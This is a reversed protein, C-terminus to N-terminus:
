QENVLQQLDIHNIKFLVRQGMLMSTNLLEFGQPGRRAETSCGRSCADRLISNIESQSPVLCQSLQPCMAKYQPNLHRPRVLHFATPVVYQSILYWALMCKEMEARYTHAECACYWFGSVSAASLCDSLSSAGGWTCNFTLLIILCSHLCTILLFHQHQCRAPLHFM